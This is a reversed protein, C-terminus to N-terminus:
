EQKAQGPVPLKVYFTTGKNLQSDVEITGGHELIIRQTISLGLGTGTPKRTFFPMFIKSLDEPAIGKGTDSIQIEVM